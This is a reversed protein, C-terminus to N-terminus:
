RQNKKISKVRYRLAEPLRAYDIVSYRRGERTLIGEEVLKDFDIPISALEMRRRVEEASMIAPRDKPVDAM